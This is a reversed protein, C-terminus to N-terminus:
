RYDRHGTDTLAGVETGAQYSCLARTLHHSVIHAKTRGATNHGHMQITAEWSTGLINLKYGEKNGQM